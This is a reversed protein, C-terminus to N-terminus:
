SVEVNIRDAPIGLEQELTLTVFEDNVIAAKLAEHVKNPTSAPRGKITVTVTSSYTAM